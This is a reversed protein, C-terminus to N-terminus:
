AVESIGFWELGGRVRWLGGWLGEFRGYVVGFGKLGEM